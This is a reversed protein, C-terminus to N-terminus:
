WMPKKAPAIAFRQLAIGIAGALLVALVIALPMPMGMGTLSVTAMGGIMLFEGQAFNIVHSSNYILTFGLAVLAYTAGITIGTFLYQIFEALM